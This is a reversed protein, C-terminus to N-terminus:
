YQYHIISTTIRFQKPGCIAHERASFSRALSVPKTQAHVNNKNKQIIPDNLVDKRLTWGNMSLMVKMSTTKNGVVKRGLSSPENESATWLSRLTSGIKEQRYQITLRISNNVNSQFTQQDIHNKGFETCMSLVEKRSHMCVLLSQLFNSLVLQQYSSQHKQQPTIQTWAWHDM